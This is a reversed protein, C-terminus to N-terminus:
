KLRYGHLEHEFIFAALSGPNLNKSSSHSLYNKIREKWREINEERLDIWGQKAAESYDRNKPKVTVKAGRILQNEFMIPIGTSTILLVLNSNNDVYASLDNIVTPASKSLLDHTNREYLQLLLYAEFLLKSLYPPGLLEFAISPVNHKSSLEELMSIASERQIGAKYTPGFVTQEFAEVMDFGIQHGQIKKLILEAIEEPTVFEMQRPTTIARFEELSFLGNEGTDIFPAEVIEESHLEPMDRFDEINEEELKLSLVHRDKYLTKKGKKLPGFAIKGWAIAAAPKIEAFKPMSPTRSLLFLLQTFAGAVASKMLLQQSPQMEGHTYPINLGMGGTGTTGIKIYMDTTGPLFLFTQYLIQVFRTLALLPNKIEVLSNYSLQSATNVCDVIIEPKYKEILFYLFSEKVIKESLSSFLFDSLKLLDDSNDEIEKFTKDKLSLPSLINGTELLIKKDPFEQQLKYFSEKNNGLSSLTVEEFGNKLLLRATAIGVLGTGGFILASKSTYM